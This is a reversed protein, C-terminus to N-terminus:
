RSRRRRSSRAQRQDAGAQARGHAAAVAAVGRIHLPQARAGPELGDDAVVGGVQGLPGLHDDGGRDALLVRLQRERALAADATIWRPARSASSQASFRSIATAPVWPLVVVVAISTQASRPM